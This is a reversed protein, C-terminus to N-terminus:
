HFYSSVYYFTSQENMRFYTFIIQKYSSGQTRPFIKKKLKAVFM